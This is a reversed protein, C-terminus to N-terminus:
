ATLQKVIFDTGLNQTDSDNPYRLHAANIGFGHTTDCVGDGQILM